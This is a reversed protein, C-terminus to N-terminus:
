PLYLIEGDRTIVKFVTENLNEIYIPNKIDSLYRLDKDQPKWLFLGKECSLVINETTLPFVRFVNLSDAFVGQLLTVGNEDCLTLTQTDREHILVKKELAYLEINQSLIDVGWEQPYNEGAHVQFILESFEDYILWDHESTVTFATPSIIDEHLPTIAHLNLFRDWTIISRTGMDLLHIRDPDDIIPKLPDELSLRTGLANDTFSNILTDARFRGLESRNKSLTILEGFSNVAIEDWSGINQAFASSSFLLFLVLIHPIRKM